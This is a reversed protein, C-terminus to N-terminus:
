VPHKQDYEPGQVCASLGSADGVKVKVLWGNGYPDSNLLGPEDALAKNVELIEGGV